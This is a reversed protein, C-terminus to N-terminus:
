SKLQTAGCMTEQQKDLKETGCHTGSLYQLENKSVNNVVV